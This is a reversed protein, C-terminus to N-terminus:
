LAAPTAASLINAAMLSLIAAAVSALSAVVPKGEKRLRQVAGYVEQTPGVAGGPSNIRLVVARVAPNDQHDQLERVLSDSDLIIGELEVVAVKQGGALGTGELLALLVWLTVVFLALVGLVVGFAIAFARGRSAM